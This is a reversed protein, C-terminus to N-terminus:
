QKQNHLFIHVIELNIVNKGTFSLSIDTFYFHDKKVLSFLLFNYKRVLSYYLPVVKKLCVM